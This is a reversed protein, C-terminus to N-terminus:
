NRKNAVEGDRESIGRTYISWAIHSTYGASLNIINDKDKNM